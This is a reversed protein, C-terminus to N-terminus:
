KEIKKFFSFPNYFFANEKFLDVFLFKDQYCFFEQLLVYGDFVNLPYTALKENSQFGVAKISNADLSIKQTNNDLDLVEIEISELFRMLFMYLDKAIFKSGGLFFRLKKLNLDDLSGSSTMSFDLEMSSKEGHVFYNIKEIDLAMVETDYSTKFHCQVGDAVSKSLIKSNKQVLVTENEDKLPEYQVITYSPIQRVYNPWLLQVLTHSVEPLEKNIQQKLRGTLFAFGELLREVDPDQGEKSLFASM